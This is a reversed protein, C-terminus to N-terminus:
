EGKITAMAASSGSAETEGGTAMLVFGPSTCNAEDGEVGFLGAPELSADESKHFDRAEDDLSGMAPGVGTGAREELLTM